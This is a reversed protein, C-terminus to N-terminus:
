AVSRFVHTHGGPTTSTNQLGCVEHMDNLSVINHSTTKVESQRMVNYLSDCLLFFVSEALEVRARAEHPEEHDYFDAEYIYSASNMTGSLAGDSAEMGEVFGDLSSHRDEGVRRRGEGTGHVVVAKCLEDVFM